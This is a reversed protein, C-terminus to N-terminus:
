CSSKKNNSMKLMLDYIRQCADDTKFSRLSESMSKLQQKNDVTTIITNYLSDGSLEAEVLVKAGGKSEIERANQEQHNRVVNPSPILLSPKGLVALESVTIAGSRAVVVDAAAMAVDMNNIYSVVKVDEQPIDIGLEKIRSMVKEYNRDGTGFLLQFKREESVKKLMEIVTQNIRDAGLSGGFILM